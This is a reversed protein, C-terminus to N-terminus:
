RVLSMPSPRDNTKEGGQPTVFEIAIGEQHHRVVKGAMQGILVIEGLPPRSDTKLSVGSISLDVVECALVDGNARTFRAFGKTSTRDHRRLATEDVEGRNMFVTLQEAVRERKLQSCNFRVGFAGEDPRAVSGEFRGFGDIYLIIQTNVDPVFGCVVQAGGPSLDLVKCEVERGDAPVFLRGPLDVKVRMFRRREAKIQAVIDQRDMTMAAALGPM